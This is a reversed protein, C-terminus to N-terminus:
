SRHAAPALLKEMFVCAMPRGSRLRHEGRGVERFGNAAYFQVAALSAAVHLSVAGQRVAEDEALRFLTSGVGRRAAAGRVYVATRHQGDEVRHSAFGLVAPSGELSGLAVYFAEGRDMAAVYRDGALGAQWDRVVEPAYFRGGISAISDLHAAAIADADSRRARRYEVHVGAM